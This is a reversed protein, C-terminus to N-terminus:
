EVDDLNNVDNNGPQKKKLGDKDYGTGKSNFMSFYKLLMFYIRKVKKTM